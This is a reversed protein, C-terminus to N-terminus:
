VHDFICISLISLFLFTTRQLVHGNRLVFGADNFRGGIAAMTELTNIGCFSVDRRVDMLTNELAFSTSANNIGLNCIDTEIPNTCLAIPLLGQSGLLLLM